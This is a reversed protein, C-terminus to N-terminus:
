LSTSRPLSLFAHWRAARSHASFCAHPLTNEVSHSNSCRQSLQEENMLEDNVDYREVAVYEAEVVDMQVPTLEAGDETCSRKGGRDIQLDVDLYTKSTM